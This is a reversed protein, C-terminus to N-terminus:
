RRRRSGITKEQNYCHKLWQREEKGKIKADRRGSLSDFEKIRNCAEEKNRFIGLVLCLRPSQSTEEVAYLEGTGPIFLLKFLGAFGLFQRYEQLDIHRLRAREQSKIWDEFVTVLM